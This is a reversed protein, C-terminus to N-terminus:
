DGYTVAEMEKQAKEFVQLATAFMDFNYEYTKWGNELTILRFHTPSSEHFDLGKWMEELDAEPNLTYVYGDMDHIGGFRFIAAHGIRTFPIHAPETKDELIYPKILNDYWHTGKKLTGWVFLQESNEM